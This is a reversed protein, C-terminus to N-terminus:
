HRIGTIGTYTTTNGSPAAVSIKITLSAAANADAEDDTDRISFNFETHGPGPTLFDGLTFNADGTVEIGEGAEVKIQTGAAMPNGNLDTVTYSFTAGGGNPINFTTPSASINAQSTSFLIQVSESIEQNDAGVTTATVTALGDAPRPDGSILDVSVIGDQDTAGSGQIIGGTTEFYVVTGPKVPNSFKDGVIVTITNRVNNIDYGEFNFKDASISFHEADPFGGHIAILVPSSTIVLGIEPREIRAQIKVPGAKNGSFLTTTVQGQANTTASSPVLSEGGGPGSVIEFQVEVSSEADLARGASDQVVFTFPASVVDGTEAINIAQLPVNTLIIAAAGAPEGGVGPGDDDNTPTLALEVGSFDSGPAVTVTKTVTKYDAKSAELTVQTATEVQIAFSYAGESDTTTSQQNEAPSTIEVFANSIPQSTSEDLVRGSIVVGEGTEVGGPKDFAEGCSQFLFVTLIVSSLLYLATKGKM